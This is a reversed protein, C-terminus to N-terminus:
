YQSIISWRLKRSLSILYLYCQSHFHQQTLCFIVATGRQIASIIYSLFLLSPFLESALTVVWCLLVTRFSQSKNLSLLFVSEARMVTGFTGRSLTQLNNYLVKSMMSLIQQPSVMAKEEQIQSGTLGCNQLKPVLLCFATHHCCVPPCPNTLWLRM